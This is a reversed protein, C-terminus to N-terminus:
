QLCKIIQNLTLTLTVVINEEDQAAIGFSCKKTAIIIISCGSECIDLLNNSMGGLLLVKRKAFYKVNMEMKWLNCTPSPM